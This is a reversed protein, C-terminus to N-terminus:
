RIFGRQRAQPLAVKAKQDGLGAAAVQEAAEKVLSVVPKKELSIM